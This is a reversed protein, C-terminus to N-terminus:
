SRPTLLRRRFQSGRFRRDPLADEVGAGASEGAEHVPPAARVASTSHIVTPLPARWLLAHRTRLVCRRQLRLQFLHERRILTPQIGNIHQTYGVQARWTAAAWKRSARRAPSSVEGGFLLANASLSMQGGAYISGPYYGINCSDTESGFGSCLWWNGGSLTWQFPGIFVEGYPNGAQSPGPWNPAGLVWSKNTQVFGPSCDLDYCGSGAYGNATWYVFLTAATTGTRNPDVTWGAEATQLPKTASVGEVWMQSLSHQLPGYSPNIAPYWISLTTQAGYFPPQAENQGVACRYEANCQGSPSAPPPPEKALFARFTPFRSLDELTVRRMPITGDDCSIANGFSDSLGLSLLPEVRAGPPTKANVAPAPPPAPLATLGLKRASPQRLIPICDVYQSDILFSHTATVGEYQSLLHARMVEFEAESEVSFQSAGVYDGYQAANERLM